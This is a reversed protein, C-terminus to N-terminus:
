KKKKPRPKGSRGTPKSPGKKSKKPGFGPGTKPQRIWPADGERQDRDDRSRSAKGGRDDRPATRKGSKDEWRDNRPRGSERDDREGSRPKGGARADRRDDREYRGRSDRAPRGRDDRDRAPGRGRGPSSSRGDRSDDRSRPDRSRDDRGPRRQDRDRADRRDGDRDRKRDYSNSGRGDDRDRGDRRPGRSDDRGRTDRSSRGGDRSGRSDDRSDYRPKSGRADRSDDRRGAPRERRPASERDSLNQERLELQREREALRREREEIEARRKASRHEDSPGGGSAARSHSPRRGREGRAGRGGDRGRGRGADHGGRGGAIRPEAVPVGSPEVAGTLDALMRFTDEDEGRVKRFTADVGANEIIRDVTKRQHPLSLMVVLGEAGARATRGARHTYDKHDHPPDMQMVLDVHDVHIGRAAVDTAVLVPIQGARFGTIARNRDEQSKDGHLAVALVGAQRMQEAIRDCALKTRVFVITRGERAAIRTALQYKAHPPVNLVVHRMSAPGEDGGTVDHLVPEEMYTSVLRDVDGDLTASFLLRQGGAPVGALIEEIEDMFGMEAMHDAEDLVVLQTQSLDANGRRVLDALRGPTAVLLHVGRELSRIQKSMSLGGAVLRLSVKMAHAFPELADNVQMALERTPVLVIARPQLPTAPGTEALRAIAPLGFGLTKGSGTRAKGLVDRGALADAITASQIPFATEM